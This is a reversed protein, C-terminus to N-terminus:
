LDWAVALESLPRRISLIIHAQSEHAHLVISQLGHMIDM